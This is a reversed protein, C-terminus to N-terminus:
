YLYGFVDITATAASTSGTTIYMGFVTAAVYGTFKATPMIIFVDTTLTTMGSLDVATKWDNCTATGGFAYSTGGALSASTTRIVVKGVVCTKGTPVTYLTRKTSATKMDVLTSTSLLSIGREKLDAM